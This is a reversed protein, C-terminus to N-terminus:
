QLEEIISNLGKSAVKQLKALHGECSKINKM